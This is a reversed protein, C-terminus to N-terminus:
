RRCICGRDTHPGLWKGVSQAKSDVCFTVFTDTRIKTDLVRIQVHSFVEPIGCTKNGDIVDASANNLTTFLARQLRPITLSVDFSASENSDDDPKQM